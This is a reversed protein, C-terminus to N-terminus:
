GFHMYYSLCSKLITNPNMVSLLLQWGFKSLQATQIVFYLPSQSGSKIEM